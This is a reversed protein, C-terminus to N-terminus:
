CQELCTIHWWIVHDLMPKTAHRGFSVQPRPYPCVSCQGEGLPEPERRDSGAQGSVVERGSFYLFCLSVDEKRMSTGPAPHTGRTVKERRRGTAPTSASVRREWPRWGMHTAAGATARAQTPLSAEPERPVSLSILQPQLARPAWCPLTWTRGLRGKQATTFADWTPAWRHEQSTSPMRPSAPVWVQSFVPERWTNKKM